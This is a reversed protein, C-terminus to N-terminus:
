NRNEANDKLNCVLKSTSKLNSKSTFLVYESKNDPNQEIFESPKDIRLVMTQTGIPSVSFHIKASKDDIGSGEYSRIEPYKAQLEPDFNSSEWVSFRELVGNSNPITIEARSKSTKQATSSLKAKLFDANLKYYLKDSDSSNIRKNLVSGSTKQWLDDNQAHVGVCCFIFLLFLLQKSM